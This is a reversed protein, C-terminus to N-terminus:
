VLDALREGGPLASSILRLPSALRGGAKARSFIAEMLLWRVRSLRLKRDSPRLYQRLADLQRAAIEDRKIANRERRLARM